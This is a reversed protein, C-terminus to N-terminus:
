PDELHNCILFDMGLIPKIGEERAAQSFKIAGFLNAEDTLAVAPSKMKNAWEVIQKPFALGDKISYTSHVRLHVFDNM